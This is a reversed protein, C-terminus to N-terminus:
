NRSPFQTPQSFVFTSTGGQKSDEKLSSSAAAPAVPPTTSLQPQFPGKGSDVDEGPNFQINIAEHAKTIKSRDSKGDGAPVITLNTFSSGQVPAVPAASPFASAGLGLGGGPVAGRSAVSLPNNTVPVSVPGVNGRRIDLPRSPSPSFM